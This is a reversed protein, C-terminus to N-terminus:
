VGFEKSRSTSVVVAGSIFVVSGFVKRRDKIDNSEIRAGARCM